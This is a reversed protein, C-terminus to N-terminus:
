FMARDTGFSCVDSSQFSQGHRLTTTLLKNLLPGVYADDPLKESLRRYTGQVRHYANFITTRQELDDSAAYPTKPMASLLVM